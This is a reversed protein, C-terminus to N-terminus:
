LIEFYPTFVGQKFDRETTHQDKYTYQLGTNHSFRSPESMDFIDGSESIFRVWAPWHDAMILLCRGYERHSILDGVQWQRPEMRQYQQEPSPESEHLM